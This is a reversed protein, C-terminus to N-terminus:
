VSLNRLKVVTSLTRTRASGSLESVDKTTASTITIRVARIDWSSAPPVDTEVGMNSIYSFQLDQINEALTVGNRQLNTGALAYNVTFSPYVVMDGPQLLTADPSPSELPIESPPGVQPGGASITYSQIIERTMPRIINVVGAIFGDISRVYVKTSGADVVEGGVPVLFTSIGNTISFTITDPNGNICDGVNACIPIVTKPMDAGTNRLEASMMEMAVRIDQQAESVEGQVTYGKQQQVMLDFVWIMSVGLIALMIMMEVLTFGLSNRLMSAQDNQEKKLSLSMM